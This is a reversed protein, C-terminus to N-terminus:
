NSKKNKPPRRRKEPKYLLEKRYMGEYVPSLVMFAITMILVSAATDSLFHKGMVLRTFATIFVYAYCGIFVPWELGKFAKFVFPLILLSMIGMAAAVHGSPFSSGSSFFVPTFWNAFAYEGGTIIDEYRDRGCIIKLVGTAGLYVVFYVLSFACVSQIKRITSRKLGRVVLFLGASILGGIIGSIYPNAKRFIGRETMVSAAHYVYYCCFGMMMAFGAGFFSLKGRNRVMLCVGLRPIFAFIPLTSVAEFIICVVNTPKYLKDTIMYDFKAGVALLIICLLIVILYGTKYKKNIMVFIDGDIFLYNM